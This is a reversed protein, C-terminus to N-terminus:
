MKLETSGYKKILELALNYADNINEDSDGPMLDSGILDVTEEYEYVVCKDKSIRTQIHMYEICQEEGFTILGNTEPLLLHSYKQREEEIESQDVGRNSISELRSCGERDFEGFTLGIFQQYRHYAEELKLKEEESIVPLGKRPAARDVLEYYIHRGLIKFKNMKNIYYNILQSCGM